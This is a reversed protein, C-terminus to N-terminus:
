PPLSCSLSSPVTALRGAASGPGAVSQTVSSMNSLRKRRLKRQRLTPIVIVSGAEHPQNFIQRTLAPLVTPICAPTMLQCGLAQIVGGEEDGAALERHGRKCHQESGARPPRCGPRPVLPQRRQGWTQGKGKEVVPGPRETMAEEVRGAGTLRADGTGPM